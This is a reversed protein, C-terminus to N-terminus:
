QGGDARRGRQGREREDLDRRHEELLDALRDGVRELGVRVGRRAEAGKGDRQPARVLQARLADATTGQQKAAFALAKESSMRLLHYALREASKRGIGPLEAFCDILTAIAGGEGAM